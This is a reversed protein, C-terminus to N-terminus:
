ALSNEQPPWARYPCPYDLDASEAGMRVAIFHHMKQLGRVKFDFANGHNMPFFLLGQCKGLMQAFLAIISENGLGTFRYRDVVCALIPRIRASPATSLGAGERREHSRIGRSFSRGTKNPFPKRTM